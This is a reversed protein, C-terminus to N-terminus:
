LLRGSCDHNRALFERACRIPHTAISGSIASRIVSASIQELPSRRNSSAQREISWPPFRAAPRRPPGSRGVKPCAQTTRSGELGAIPTSEPDYAAARRLDNKRGGRDLLRARAVTQGSAERWPSEPKEPRIIDDLNLLRKRVGKLNTQSLQWENKASPATTTSPYGIM